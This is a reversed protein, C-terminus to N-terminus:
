SGLADAITRTLEISFGERPGSGEAPMSFPPRDVTVFTLTAEQASAAIPLLLLLGLWLLGFLYQKM